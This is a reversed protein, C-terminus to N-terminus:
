MAIINLNVKSHSFISETDKTIRQTGQPDGAPAQEGKNGIVSFNM